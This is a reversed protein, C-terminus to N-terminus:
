KASRMEELLQKIKGRVREIGREYHGIKASIEAISYGQLSLEFIQREKPGSLRCIVEEVTEAMIVAEDPTPVDAIAEFFQLDTAAEDTTSALERRVDRCDAQFYVARRACKRVTLLVLLSWVGGWNAFEFEGQASRGFFTRFVSQVVDEADVKQRLRNDLHSRALGVLRRAFRQFILDAASHDGGRLRDLLIQSDPEPSM